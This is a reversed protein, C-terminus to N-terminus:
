ARMKWITPDRRGHFVALVVIRATEIRFYVSYPFRYVAIRRVNGHVTAYQRPHEAMRAVCREVEVIFAAALGARRQEYWAAAAVFEERAAPRFVVPLNM